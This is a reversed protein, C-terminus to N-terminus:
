LRGGDRIYKKIITNINVVHEAENKAPVVISEIPLSVEAHRFRGRSTDYNGSKEHNITDVISFEIKM